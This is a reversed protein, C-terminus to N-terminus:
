LSNFKAPKGALRLSKKQPSKKGPSKKYTVRTFGDDDHVQTKSSKAPPLPPLNSAAALAIVVPHTVGDTILSSSGSNVTKRKRSIDDVEDGDLMSNAPEIVATNVIADSAPIVFEGLVDRNLESLIEDDDMVVDCGLFEGIVYPTTSPLEFGPNFGGDKSSVIAASDTVITELIGTPMSIIPDDMVVQADVAPDVVKSVSKAKVVRARPIRKVAEPNDNCRSLSHGFAKCISCSYPM